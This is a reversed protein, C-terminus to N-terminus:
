RDVKVKSNNKLYRAATESLISAGFPLCSEDIDFIPTHLGREKGDPLGCGLFFMAGSVKKVMHGFDEGGLGFPTKDITFSPYVDRITEEIFQNVSADNDLAPEGRTVHLTYDGGLQKVFSFAKELESVLLERVKPSYSRMTGELAVRTPIVNSTTGAHIQGVSIVAPELPSVKRPVIGHLAQLVLGLMWVPDTGLHPYAGHGGTGLLTAQFVDVNAMSYGDHIQVEGPRKWPCMHLAIAVDVDDLVGAEVMHCAGTLGKDDPTEEAPQFIMKVTGKLEGQKFKEAILHAVGLLIATHADHGCAHMVGENQSRCAHDTNEVIPLADMDARVAITPGEGSSLTGTVGTQAIGTQVKIGEIGRLKDTVFKSTNVEQFSLEPNEHLYRRWLILKEAFDGTKEMQVM